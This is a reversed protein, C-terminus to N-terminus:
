EPAIVVCYRAQKLSSSSLIPSSDNDEDIVSPISSLSVTRHRSIIETQAEQQQQCLSTQQKM